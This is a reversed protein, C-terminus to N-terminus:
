RRRLEGNDYIYGGALTVPKPRSHDREVAPGAKIKEGPPLRPKPKRGVPKRTAPVRTTPPGPRLALDINLRRCRGIVANKTIDGGLREAIVSASLGEDALHKLSADRAETWYGQKM